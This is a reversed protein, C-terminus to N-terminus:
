LRLRKKDPARIWEDFGVTLIKRAKMQELAEEESKLGQLSFHIAGEQTVEVTYSGDNEHIIQYVYIAM